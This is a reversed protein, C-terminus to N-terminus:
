NKADFTSTQKNCIRNARSEASLWETAWCKCPPVLPTSVFAVNIDQLLGGVVVVVVVVELVLVIRAAAAQWRTSERMSMDGM